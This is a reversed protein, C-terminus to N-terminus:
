VVEVQVTPETIAMLRLDCYRRTARYIQEPSMPIIASPEVEGSIDFYRGDIRTIVHFYMDYFAEADPFVEKLLLYFRYCSGQTCIKVMLPSIQRVRAIFSEVDSHRQVITM